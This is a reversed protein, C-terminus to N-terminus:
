LSIRLLLVGSLIGPHCLPDSAYITRLYIGIHDIKHPYTEMEKGEGFSNPYTERRHLPSSRLRRRSQRRAPTPSPSPSLAPAPRVRSLPIVTDGDGLPTRCTALSSSVRVHTCACTCSTTALSKGVPPPNSGDERRKSNAIVFPDAAPDDGCAPHRTKFRASSGEKRSLTVTFYIPDAGPNQSPRRQDAADKEKKKKAHPDSSM